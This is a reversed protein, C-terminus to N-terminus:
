AYKLQLVFALQKDNLFISDNLIKAWLGAPRDPHTNIFTAVDRRSVSDDRVEVRYVANNDFIERAHFYPVDHEKAFDLVDKRLHKYSTM